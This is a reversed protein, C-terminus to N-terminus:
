LFMEPSLGCNETPQPLTPAINTKIRPKYWGAPERIAFSWRCISIPIAPSKMAKWPLRGSCTRIIYYTIPRLSFRRRLGTSACFMCCSISRPTQEWDDFTLFIVRDETHILGSTDLRRTEMKSFGLMRDEYNVDKHGIYRKAAEAMVNRGTIRVSPGDYRLGGPITAPDAPYQYIFRSHRLLEGVPKIAYQSDNAPNNAPNDYSPAYAINDVKRWKITEVLDGALRENSYYDMRFHVIQGRSLSLAFKGFIEAMVQDAATYDKHRSQVVNVSQGILRYGLGAVAEKTTDSVAGWPQKVLGTTVGFQEQLLRGTALIMRRTEDPAEGDKPRIAIGIEHGDAIIKRLTAPHRRIEPEMVFFTARIGLGRLRRLVDSVAAERSLGGFTFSLAPETTPIVRIEQAQNDAATAQVTRISFLAAAQEPLLSFLGIFPIGTLYVGLLLLVPVLLITKYKM